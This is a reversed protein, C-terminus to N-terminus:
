KGTTSTVQLKRELEKIGKDLLDLKNYTKHIKKEHKAKKTEVDTIEKNLDEVIAYIRKREDSNKKMTDFLEKIEKSASPPLAGESEGEAPNRNPRSLSKM